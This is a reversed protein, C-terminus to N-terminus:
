QQITTYTPITLTEACEINGYTYVDGSQNILFRAFFNGSADAKVTQLGYWFQVPNYFFLTQTSNLYHDWYQIRVAVELFFGLHNSSYM